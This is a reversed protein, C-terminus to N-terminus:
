LDKLIHVWFGLDLNKWECILTFLPLMAFDLKRVLRKELIPDIADVVDGIELVTSQKPLSAGSGQSLETKEESMKFLSSTLISRSDTLATYTRLVVRQPVAVSLLRGNRHGLWDM